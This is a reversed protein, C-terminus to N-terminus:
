PRVRGPILVDTPDQGCELGNALRCRTFNLDNPITWDGLRGDTGIARVKWQWVPDFDVVISCARYDYRTGQVEMDLLAREARKHQMQIQYARAGPVTTWEFLIRFGYGLVPDNRCESQPDNQLVFSGSVPSVLGPIFIPLPTSSGTSATPIGTPATPVRAGCAGCLISGALIIM